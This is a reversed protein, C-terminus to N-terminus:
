VSRSPAVSEAPTEAINAPDPDPVSDTASVNLRRRPSLASPIQGARILPHREYYWVFIVVSITTFVILGAFTWDYGSHVIIWGGVLSAISWALNWTGSRYGFVSARARPPLVESIFTSDIPWAMSISTQRVLHTLVALGINPTFILLLYFPAISLRVWFVAWISGFRRSIAPASLGIVAATLGGAAYVLGVEGTSAGLSSLYVNYFPFVMGAGLSMVGGLGVFVAMDRRVQKRDAPTEVARPAAADAQPSKRRAETMRLLPLVAFCTVFTGVILTWRYAAASESGVGPIGRAALSPVIGGLLSGFTTSLSILSFGLTAIDQRQDRRGWEIIFPMTTTFLYALTIGFLAALVLLAAPNETMALGLSVVLNAATAVLICRWTGYRNLFRGMTLAATAMALTQVASFAGIYDERLDLSYLYLNFVLTFVGIGIYVLMNFLLFLKIERGYSSVRRIYRGMDRHAM